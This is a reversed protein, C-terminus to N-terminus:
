FQKRCQVDRNLGSKRHILLYILCFLLLAVFEEAILYYPYPGLFDLISPTNPKYALFMYNADLSWNVTGVVIVLINLFLMTIGISRLRPRYDEVWTMYLSALVIALHCIFFHFYIFHPYPVLLNPTLIAQMAGGIGAFVMIQYLFYSRTMLMLCSLYLSISCLELPLHVQLDWTGHITYISYLILEPIIMAGIIGWRILLRIPQNQQIVRRSFWLILILALLLIIWVLHPWHYMRFSPDSQVSIYIMPNLLM